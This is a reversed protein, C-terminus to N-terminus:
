VGCFIIRYVGATIAARTVAAVHAATTADGAYLPTTAPAPLPPLTRHNCNPINGQQAPAFARQANPPLITQPTEISLFYFPRIPANHISTLGEPCIRSAANSPLIISTSRKKTRSFVSLHPQYHTFIARRPLCRRLQKTAIHNLPKFLM